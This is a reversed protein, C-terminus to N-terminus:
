GTQGWLAFVYLVSISVFLSPEKGLRLILISIELSWLAFLSCVSLHVLSSPHHKGWLCYLECWIQIQLLLSYFLPKFPREKRTADSQSTGLYYWGIDFSPHLFSICSQNKYWETQHNSQWSHRRWRHWNSHHNFNWEDCLWWQKWEEVRSHERHCRRTKVLKCEQLNSEM